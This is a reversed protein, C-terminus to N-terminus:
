IRLKMKYVLYHFHTLINTNIYVMQKGLVIITNYIAYPYEKDTQVNLKFGLVM